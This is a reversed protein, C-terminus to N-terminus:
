IIQYKNCTKWIRKSRKSHQISKGQSFKKYNKIFPM